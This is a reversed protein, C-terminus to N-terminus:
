LKSFTKGVKKLRKQTTGLKRAAQAAKAIASMQGGTLLPKAGPDWKREKRSLSEYCVNDKGLKFGPPCKRRTVTEVMPAAGYGYRGVMASYAPAQHGSVLPAGGPLAAMPDVCRGMLDFSGDPCAGGSGVDPSFNGPVPNNGSPPESGSGGGGGLFGRLLDEAASGIATGLDGGIVAEGITGGLEARHVVPASIQPRTGGSGPSRTADLGGVTSTPRTLIMGGMSNLRSAMDKDANRSLSARATAWADRCYQDSVFGSPSFAYGTRTLLPRCKLKDGISLAALVDANTM